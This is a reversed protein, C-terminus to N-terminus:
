SAIDRGRATLWAAIGQVFADPEKVVLRPTRHVVSYGLTELILHKNATRDADGAM